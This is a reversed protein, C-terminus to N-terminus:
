AAKAFDPFQNRFEVVAYRILPIVEAGQNGTMNQLQAKSLGCAELMEVHRRFTEKPSVERAVPYGQSKITLYTKYASLAKAFSPNGTKANFTVFHAKLAEMIKEDSLSKMKEGKLVDFLDRTAETWYKQADFVKKMDLLKTPIGRREFWRTKLTAEWRIMGVCWDLLAQSYFKAPDNKSGKRKALYQTIEALKDYVKIKKIRSGKKGFYATGDFDSNSPRTQGNSVHTLAKIFHKAERASNAWSAYTIDVECVELTSWDLADVIGPYANCLTEILVFACDGLDDSGYVNHGQALKAPSAKFEVFPDPNPRDQCFDFCKFALDSFSSPISEWPHRLDFVEGQPDISGVLKLGFRDLRFRDADSFWARLVLRDIM